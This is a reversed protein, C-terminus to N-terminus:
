TATGGFVEGILASVQESDIGGDASDATTILTGAPGGGEERSLIQHSRFWEKKETWRQRYSADSLMGLHEWYYTEGTDDDEITFDPYKTLGDRELPEEYRYDVGSAHLLNAIVVESKSRVAEGRATRRILGDELITESILIPKPPVFLNTLRKAVESYVESSLRQLEAPAGQMLIVIRERQRTLATYILERSLLQSSKPLVLLVTGFESGQAKHVTFAYALELSAEGEEEFDRPWFKVVSRVDTSFEVELNRPSYPYKQTRMQGVVIGIEGNALYREKEPWVKRKPVRANRNNIVKDGYVILEDGQPKLFRRFRGAPVTTADEIQRSKYRQHILRNLAVVGYPKQRSPSLIQWAEAEAGSHGVNFYAYRGSVRGGLSRSFELEETADEDFGLHEALVHPLRDKLDDDSEWQVVKVTDSQRHGSLIEFASDHGPGPEGGFWEALDLGDRDHLDQRRPVTLEAYSRGVRPFGGPFETPRLHTIIDVFPRGAGIPPLQRPDGVLILRDFGSLAELLAALMEETLMSCEDVVVTRGRSEGPRGTLLYRQTGGDYRGSPTLFQALTYASTTESGAEGVLQEMRVRAKGTPALLVVGGARIDPHRGLVSLLTTKGTGASGLLVSIRANAMEHLAAAKERRAQEEADDMGDPPSQDLVGDLEARWDIELDHRKAGARRNVTRRILDGAAGLRELQYAPKGDAMEVIRVEGPFQENEAVGLLDGTVLTQSSDDGRDASRLNEVIRERPILTHGQPAAAELERISLARLRRADVPTEVRSPQPAPFRERLSAEPFFGHDVASISVSTETLRTLEYLLYPNRVFDADEVEIGSARREEPIALIKAQEPTLDVRSLLELFARRESAMAKWSKAITPDVRRALEPQLYDGPSDLLSFWVAWPSEDDGARESLARAIFNGMPVGCAHLVVGLGPFPGRKRWLRGLEQDIWAEQKRVDAGFLEASKLLSERMAQLAEIAADDSVHETAYSFETFRHEPAFAVVEAPDFLEGDQSQELAEHYPLLFGDAHDPRISHSLMREWVMSRLRGAPPGDYEYETLPGLAKVRGAGVLVRRGPADEVLPVQKAYFFVLSVDPEVHDWFTELLARHNSHDQWWSTDFDLTPERDESLEDLPYHERLEEASEKVMWRFPVAPAADPPYSVPAPKFHGHPRRDNRRYRHEHNGSFGRPSMFAARETVCPPFEHPQLSAFHRGAIEAEEADDKSEAINKLKLCALNNQPALCVSGNWGDDHWPVRVSVHRVPFSFGSPM